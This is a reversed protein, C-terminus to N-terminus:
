PRSVGLLLGVAPDTVELVLGPWLGLVLVLAALPLWTVAEVATVDGLVVPRAAPADGPWCVRRVMVLLYVATLVAGVGAVALLVLYYPRSLDPDPRFAGGMALM